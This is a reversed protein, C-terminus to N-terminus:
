RYHVCLDSCSFQEFPNQLEDYKKTCKSSFSSFLFIQFNSVKHLSWKQSKKNGTRRREIKYWKFLSQVINNISRNRFFIKELATNM